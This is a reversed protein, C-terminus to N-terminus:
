FGFMIIFCNKEMSEMVSYNLLGLILVIRTGFQTTDEILISLRGILPTTRREREHEPQMAGICSSGLRRILASPSFRIVSAGGILCRNNPSVAELSTMLTDDVIIVEAFSM